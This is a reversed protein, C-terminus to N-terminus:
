RVGRHRRRSTSVSVQRIQTVQAMPVGFEDNDGELSLVEEWFKQRCTQGHLLKAQLIGLRGSPHLVVVPARRSRHGTRLDRASDGTRYTVATMYCASSAMMTLDNGRFPSRPPGLLAARLHLALTLTLSLCPMGCGRTLSTARGPVTIGVRPNRPLLGSPTTNAVPGLWIASRTRCAGSAASADTARSGPLTAAAHQHRQPRAGRLLLLQCSLNGPQETVVHEAGHLRRHV